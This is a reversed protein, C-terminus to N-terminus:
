VSPEGLLFDEVKASLHVHLVYESCMFRSKSGQLDQCGLHKWQEVLKNM